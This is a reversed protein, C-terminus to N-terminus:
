TRTVSGRLWIPRQETGLPPHLSFRSPIVRDAPATLVAGRCGDAMLGTLENGKNYKRWWWGTANWGDSWQVTENGPPLPHASMWSM